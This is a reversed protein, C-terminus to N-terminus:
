IIHYKIVARFFILCALLGISVLAQKRMGMMYTISANLLLLSVIYIGVWALPPDAVVGFLASISFAMAFFYGHKGTYAIILDYLSRYNPAYKLAQRAAQVAKEHERTEGYLYRLYAYSDASHADVQLAQHMTKEAEDPRGGIRYLEALGIYCYVSQPDLALAKRFEEESETYQKQMMYVRGKVRHPRSMEPKLSLAKDSAEFAQAYQKMGCLCGALGVYAEANDPEADIVQRYLRAARSPKNRRYEKEARLFQANM